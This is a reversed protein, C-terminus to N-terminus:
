VKKFFLTCYVVRGSNNHTITLLDGVSLADSLGTKRKGIKSTMAISHLLTDSPWASFEDTSWSPTSKYISLTITSTSGYGPSNNFEAAYLTCAVPIYFTVQNSESSATGDIRFWACFYDDTGSGVITGTVTLNGNITTAINNGATGITLTSNNLDMLPVSTDPVGSNNKFIRFKDATKCNPSPYLVGSDAHASDPIYMGFQKFREQTALSFAVVQDDITNGINADSLWANGTAWAQSIIM